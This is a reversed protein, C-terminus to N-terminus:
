FEFDAGDSVIVHGLARKETQDCEKGHRLLMEGDRWPLGAGSAQDAAEAAVKLADAGADPSGTCPGGFIPATPVEIMSATRAAM